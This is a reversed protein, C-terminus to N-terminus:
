NFKVGYQYEFTENENQVVIGTETLSTLTYGYVSVGNQITEKTIIKNMWMNWLTSLYGNAM